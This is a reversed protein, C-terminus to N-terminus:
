DILLHAALLGGFKNVGKAIFSAYPSGFAAIAQQNGSISDSELQPNAMM